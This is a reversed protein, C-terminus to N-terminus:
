SITNGDQYRRLWKYITSQPIYLERAVEKVSKGEKIMSIVTLKLQLPYRHFVGNEVWYKKCDKCFYIQKGLKTKGYKIVNSSGCYRCKVM